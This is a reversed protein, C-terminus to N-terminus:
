KSISERLMLIDSIDVEGDGNVDAEDLRPKDEKTNTITKGEVKAIHTRLNLVDAMDSIGDCTIDRIVRIIYNETVSGRKLTLTSNTTVLDNNTITTGKSNAVGKEKANTTIKGFFTTVSTKEPVRMIIKETNDINYETSSITIEDSEWHAYLTHNDTKTVKTTSIVQTGADKATFWGLFTHRDRTPTPLSGYTSGYTVSKSTPSVSGGNPNFTVTYTAVTPTLTKYTAGDIVETGQKGEMGADYTISGTAAANQGKIIGGKFYFKGTSNNSVGNYEAQIITGSNVYLVPTGYANAIGTSNSAIITSSTVKCESYNAIGVGSGDEIYGNILDISGGDNFIAGDVSGETVIDTGNITMTGLNDIVSSCGTDGRLISNNINVKCYEGNYLASYSGTNGGGEITSDNIYSLDDVAGVYIGYQKGAICKVNNIDFSKASVHENGAEIATGETSEIVIDSNYNDMFLGATDSLTIATNKTKITGGFVQISANIDGIIGTDAEIDISTTIDSGSNACIATGTNAILKGKGSTDYIGVMTMRSSSELSMANDNGTYTYTYGDLHIELDAADLSLTESTTINSLMRIVVVDESNEKSNIYNSIENVSYFYTENPRTSKAIAATWHAYITHNSATTVTTTSKVQTGGNSATYWGDFRWGSRTPTPLSGYTSGYTVSKSSPSVSGGNANYTVTYTNADWFVNIKVDQEDYTLVKNGPDASQIHTGDSEMVEYEGLTYGTKSASPLTIGEGYKYTTPLTGSFTAGQTGTWTISYIYKLIQVTVTSTAKNNYGDIMTVTIKYTGVDTLKLKVPLSEVWKVTGSDIERGDKTVTYTFGDEKNNEDWGSLEIAAEGKITTTSGNAKSANNVQISLTPAINDTWQAYITHNNATAVTSTSTIRTGGTSATYWGTFSWGTRTPTPLTGYTNGYTVSKSSSSVSGGNANYTVTYTNGTYRAYYTGGNLPVSTTSTAKTGGSTASTTYWGAFTYGARTVDPQIGLTTGYTLSQKIQVNGIKLTTIVDDAAMGFNFAIYTTSGTATFSLTATKTTTQATTPIYGIALSNGKNDSDSVSTLVQYGVGSYGSLATYSSPTQYDFSMTYAKGSVTTIPIYVVEWNRKGNVSITNLKSSSDYSITFRDKYYYRWDRMNNGDNLNYSVTYLNGTWQAYYTKNGTDSTSVSTVKTGGSSATYWGKFTYGTRTVNTPLTTSYGQRYSNIKGSNITGGNTNYNINYLSVGSSVTNELNSNGWKDKATGKAVKIRINGSLVNNEFGLISLSYVGASSTTKSITIGTLVSNGSYVTINSITLSDSSYSTNYGVANLTVNLAMEGSVRSTYYSLINWYMYYYNTVKRSDDMTITTSSSSSLKVSNTGNYISEPVYITCSAQGCSTFMGSNSSPITTFAPGLKLSTLGNTAFGGFMSTMNTVSSTSFNSGLDLSTLPQAAYYFMYSMDTVKSTNFNSGLNISTMSSNGCGRFMNSMNTVNSTYFYSGLNLSTLKDHGFEGFMYNMDTVNSTNFNSGISFSTMATYGCENFMGVMNTVNSTYFYNGLSLSTMSNRGCDKFMHKMNTVNSTNFNSGLTLTTMSQYGVSEFMSEMNKAKSTNFNNGLNLSTLKDFGCGSFMNSMDTVNSTNFNSGLNLSTLKNFGCRGFMWSMNTVKSTNFNNGLTLTTMSQYGCEYFMVSMDTVNSTYFYHGLNLSTMAVRGCNAFMWNMSTVNSTNFKSGLTLTTMATVGCDHFMGSMDKVNSTNFKSGLNLSTMKNKGCANFMNNMNTVNSTDFNSGLNLSTMANNGFNGFMWEMNTVQSTNLYSLGSIATTSTCDSSYGIYSFLYRSNTNAYITTNSKIHVTKATGTGTVWAIISSDGAASVDYTTGSTSTSSSEFAVKEINQRQIGSIGLFTSTASTESSTSKLYPMKMVKRSGSLTITTSSSSNLKVSNTGNYISEPVYVTCDSAGMYNFIETYPSVIKTFAPGLNLTKLSGGYGCGRFMYQMDTASSTSFKTGLNLSTLKTYGCYWFIGRLNSVNSTNFNPGLNLSTMSKYGCQGFMDRMTTVKSTNFKEYLTMSTMAKYGCFEFMYDMNTVNSTDLYYLYISTMANYGCNEFMHSMNTVQSTNLYSLNSVATTSTCNSSYGIYAFLYSSNTNAYITSSTNSKIHVTKATGTGTVWAIVSRDGAASVDYTTGSTSTSSSEFIVKEINQRQIGSIGLFTSTASTESSTSKLYNTTNAYTAIPSANSEELISEVSVSEAENMNKQSVDGKLMASGNLSGNDVDMLTFKSTSQYAGSIAGTNKNNKCILVVLLIMMVLLIYLILNCKRNSKGKM